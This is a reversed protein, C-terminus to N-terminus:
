LNNHKAKELKPFFPLLKQLTTNTQVTERVVNARLNTIKNKSLDLELLTNNNKLSAIVYMVGDDCIANQSIDIKILDENVLIAEAIKKAGDSTIGNGSLNLEQLTNNTKLCKGIVEAGYDNIKNYSIDLKQIVKNVYILDSIKEAGIDSINNNSLLLTQLSCITQLCKSIEIVGNDTISNCSLDLKLLTTNNYLGFTILYVADDNIGANCIKITEPSCDHDRDYLININLIKELIQLKRSIIKAGKSKWSLSIEALGINNDLVKGISNIGIKGIHCLTLSHLSSNARLSETIEKIYEEMGQDGCLTLSNVHCYRIIASYVGWSSTKNGCLDAYRLAIVHQMCDSLNKMGDMGINIHSLDLHKVTINNYLGFTLLTATDDPDNIVKGGLDIIEPSWQCDFDYLLVKINVARLNVNGNNAFLLKGDIAIMEIDSNDHRSVNNMSACLTLSQITENFQLNDKIEKGYRTIGENGCFTLSNVCCHRIIACYVNWPSSKNGSLDVYELATVYKLCESLTNMGSMSISNNSLDLHKIITNNCLGLAILCTTDNNIYKGSLCITDSLSESGGYMDYLIKMNVVRNGDNSAIKKGDIVLTNFVLNGLLQLESSRKSNVKTIVNNYKGTITITTATPCILLSQLSANFHISDKIKEFYENISENGCLTLCNGHCFRIITCYVGWPTSKNGSLDVYKLASGNKICESLRNMGNIGIKNYSLDLKTITTNNFLGFSFLCVTDDNIYRNPLCITEMSSEFDVRYLIEVKIVRSTISSLKITNDDANDVPANFALMGDIVLVTQINGVTGDEDVNSISACLTLSQLTKNMKLSDIIEKAYDNIGEDGCLTLSSISCRKIISCYTSWPSSKNVSLDVYELSTAHKISKSLKKMGELTIQNHSLCLERLVNNCRLLSSIILAGDDTIENHSINLNQATVNHCGCILYCIIDNVAKKFSTFPYIYKSFAPQKNDMKCSILSGCTIKTKQSQWSANLKRLSTINELVEIYAILGATSEINHLMLSELNKNLQLNKVIRKTYVEIGQDGYLTLNTVRSHRIVACYVKWPSSKNGCLNVNEIVLPNTHNVCELLRNMGAIDINNFSLDLTGVTTFDHLVFTILHVADDNIGQNSLKVVKSLYEYHSDHLLNLNLVRNSNHFTFERHFIKRKVNSEWSLNLEKLSFSANGNLISKISQVGTIGIKYLTLSRLTKNTQLSDKIDKVYKIMEEDGYLTLNNVCCHKIIACYVDWPSSKNRSLDINVIVLPNTHKICESLKIMGNVDINNFSLDLKKVATFNHLVFTLLYVAHNNIAQHSLIIVESLYEHHYHSLLNLNILRDNKYSTLQRHFIKSKANSEWSLNLEKLNFTTNDSLIAEISQVGAIGIEYLTLSQLTTNIQLSDKIEEVYKIMEEDGCLILNNVYCHRIIACYVSWPSSKNRSLDVYELTLMNPDKKMVHELLSHMGIDLLSCNGLELVKWQQKYSASMFFILSSIHHPLLTTDNLIIKGDTFISAIEKPMEANDKAETYCLFLHLCKVKDNYITMDFKIMSSSSFSKKSRSCAFSTFVDSKVGIIGVYMMWMFNFKGEWFKRKMELLQADNPLNSVHFAALYEQMTFHLFNVSTTKGVGEKPYHNVAQLLGFGNIAGPISDVEPCVKKIEEHTFVLQDKVLGNFALTSLQRVFKIIGNPLGNIHKIVGPPSLKHRELYRYITHLIFSENLETLTEPLSGRLFLFMLIALHLPIYCLNNIVPHQKLYKDLKQKKDFADGLSISIYRDREENPFGLIEIRRDVTGHLTLTATPRSTVIITSNLFSGKGKILNAIFSDEQLKTPYEDFGDLVFAVNIGQCHKVYKRMDDTNETTFLELIKDISTVEHLRPDRLYLLFVLKFKKLVEVFAWQYVIEKALITKGIGPAGEVLIRKPFTTAAESTFLKKIDTTVDSHSILKDVCSAGEKCRKSIEILEEQTQTDKCHILALNVISLPQNPPWEEENLRKRDMKYKVCLEDSLEIVIQPVIIM